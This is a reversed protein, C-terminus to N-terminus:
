KDLVYDWKKLLGIMKELAESAWLSRHEELKLILKPMVEALFSDKYDLQMDKMDQISFKEKRKIRGSIM